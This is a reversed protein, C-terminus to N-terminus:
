RRSRKLKSRIHDSFYRSFTHAGSSSAVFFMDNTEAPHLAANISALGPNCIPGPPLGRHRYTNYPSRVALDKLTLKAKHTGLAYQVTACSELYWRKKLRNHFVGAIQPREEPRVAEHEVMSALTLVQRVSMKLERARAEMDPTFHQWFEATFKELVRELPTHEEFYYTEPFLYGELEKEKVLALFADRDAIIKKRALVDATQQVTFGEPITVTVYVARGESLTKLVGFVSSRPSILYTGAKLRKANGTVRAVGLFFLRSSVVGSKSLIAAIEGTSSGEPIVVTVTGTPLLVWWVLLGAFYVILFAAIIYRLKM